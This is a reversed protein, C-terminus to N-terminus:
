GRAASGRFFIVGPFIKIFGKEGMAIKVDHSAKVENQFWLEFGKPSFGFDHGAESFDTEKAVALRQVQDRTVHFPLPLFRKLAIALRIVFLPILIGVRDLGAIQCMTWIFEQISYTKPGCLTYTKMRIAPAKAIACVAAAVDGVHIPTLGFEGNGPILVIKQSLIQAMLANVGENKTVGYVEAVRLIIWELSSVQLRKELMRKSTGYAGCGPGIARTSIYIFRKVGCTEASSILRDGADANVAYYRDTRDSHTIGAVHIILDTGALHSSYSIPDELTGVVIRCGKIWLGLKQTLGVVHHGTSVLGEAIRQGMESSIGTVFVRM